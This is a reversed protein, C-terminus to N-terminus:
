VTGELLPQSEYRADKPRLMGIPLDVVRRGWDKEERPMMPLSRPPYYHHELFFLAEAQRFTMHNKSRKARWYFSEWLRETNPELKVRRPKHIDGGVSKLTGDRQVVMRSKKEHTFGCKQCTPGAFRVAHCSPCCIPEPEKHELFRSERIERLENNTCDLSWERDVNLSGHRHWNGGHDQIVVHDLSPHARLLRGGSQLFSTLAGFVTAFIGHYLWPADIGERLVFRNCVVKISGDKSGTIIDARAEKSSKSLKGNIWVDDGDIHAASIGSSYFQEAFWLSEGVGPAFLIAPRQDPNLTRYNDLVRAYITPTMIVKKVSGETFEGTPTRKLEKCDPEDPGYTYAPVLAGCKRLESTTGAVILRTYTNGIEIPTATIGVVAAGQEQHDAIIKRAVDGNNLHAEDVLVLGAPWLEWKKSKYVRSHETQLSSIQVFHSFDPVHSAARIGHRIGSATLNKSLQETLMKRNSYLVSRWGMATAKEILRQAIFSKGGGTPSTLCIAKQGAMIAEWTADIGYRQHPWPTM